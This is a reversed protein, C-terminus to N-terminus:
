YKGYDLRGENEIIANLRVKDSIATETRDFVSDSIM